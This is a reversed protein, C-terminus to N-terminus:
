EHYDRALDFINGLVAGKSPQPKPRLIEYVTAYTTEVRNMFFYCLIGHLILSLTYCVYHIAMPSLFGLLGSQALPTEIYVLATAAAQGLYFWWFRLDLKLLSIRNHRMMQISEAMAAMAGKRPNDLICYNTMRYQYFFPAAVLLFIALFLPIAPQLTEGVQMFLDVDSYVTEAFAYPDELLPATLVKFDEALPTLLFIVSAAHAAFLALMLYLGGLLILSRMLPGFCAFGELLDRPLAPHRRTMRLAANQYGLQVCHLSVVYALPLVMRITSLISRLGLNGLGGTQSIRNDLILLLVSLLLAAATNIATFILVVLRPNGPNIDLADSAATCVAKRNRIDM